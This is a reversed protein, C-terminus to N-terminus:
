RSAGSRPRASPSALMVVVSAGLTVAGAAGLVASVAIASSRADLSSQLGQADPACRVPDAACAGYARQGDAALAVATIAGAALVGAGLWGWWALRRERPEIASASSTRLEIPALTVSYSVDGARGPLAATWPRYRPAVVEIRQSRADLLWSAGAARAEHQIRGDVTVTANSPAFRLQVRLCQAELAQREQRVAALREPPAQEEPAQLYRDWVDIAERYRGVARYALGLNYYALPGARERVAQELLPIAAAMDMSELLASGRVLAENREQQACVNMSALGIALAALLATLNARSSWVGPLTGFFTEARQM